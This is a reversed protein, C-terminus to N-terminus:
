RKRLEDCMRKGTRQEIEQKTGEGHKQRMHMVTAAESGYSKNCHLCNFEKNIEIALRRHKRQKRQRQM